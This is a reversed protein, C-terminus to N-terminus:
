TSILLDLKEQLAEAVEDPDIGNVNEISIYINGMGGGRGLPIVAEPGREGIMALTPKNVIGGKALQPIMDLKFGGLDIGGLSRIDVGPIRNLLKIVDNIKDIIWNISMAIGNVVANWAGRIANAMGIFANGIAKGVIVAVEKLKDWNKIILINIAILAAIALIVAGIILLWPSAAATVALVALSVLLLGGALLALVSGVVLGIAIWKKQTDSLQLFWDIASEAWGLLKTAIPLLHKGLEERAEKTREKFRKMTNNFEDQTRMYDGQAKGTQEQILDLTAMAKAQLLATGTLDGMGMELVRANVDADLLKVGLTTLSEREGLIAKNLIDVAQSAGGQLDQFSSLDVGLKSITESMKLAEDGTFGFGILLDGTSSLLDKASSEALGFNDRIDKAVAEAKDGVDGFVQDFRSFVEQADGASKVLSASVALGAIGLGTLAVGAVGIAAAHKQVVGSLGGLQKTVNKITGSFKDVASIVITIGAGGLAGGALAGGLEM